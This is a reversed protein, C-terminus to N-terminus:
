RPHLSAAYGRDLAALKAREAADDQGSDFAEWAQQDLKVARQLVVAPIGTQEQLYGFGAASLHAREAPAVRCRYVATVMSVRYIAAATSPAVPPRRLLRQEEAVRQDVEGQFCRYAARFGGPM